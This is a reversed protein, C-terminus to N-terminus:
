DQKENSEYLDPTKKANKEESPLQSFGVSGNPKPSSTVTIKYVGYFATMIGLFFLSLFFAPSTGLWNDLGYGILSSLLIAGVFEIGAHIGAKANEDEAIKKKEQETPEKLGRAKNIKDELARLNDDDMM